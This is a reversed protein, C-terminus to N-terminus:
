KKKSPGGLVELEAKLAKLELDPVFLVTEDTPEYPKINLEVGEPLATQVLEFFLAGTTVPVDVLKVTRHYVDLSYKSEVITSMPKYKTVDICKKPTAWCSEVDLGMHEATKHIFSSFSELVPFEFGKIEVSLTEYTAIQPGKRDLYDPETPIKLSISRAHKILRPTSSASKRVFELARISTLM